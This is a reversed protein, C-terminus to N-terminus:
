YFHFMILLLPSFSWNKLCFFFSYFDTITKLDSFQRMFFFHNQFLRRSKTMMYNTKMQSFSATHSNQSSKLMICSKLTCHFGSLTFVILTIMRDIHDFHSSQGFDCLKNIFGIM